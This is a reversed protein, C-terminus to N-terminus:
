QGGLFTSISKALTSIQSHVKELSKDTDARLLQLDESIKTYHTEELVKLQQVTNTLNQLQTMLQNIISSQLNNYEVLQTLIEHSLITRNKVIKEPVPNLPILQQM